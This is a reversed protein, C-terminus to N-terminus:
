IFYLFYIIIIKINYIFSNFPLLSLSFSTLLIDGVWTDCGWRGGGGVPVHADAFGAKETEM